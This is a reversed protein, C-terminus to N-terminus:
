CSKPGKRKKCDYIRPTLGGGSFFIHSLDTQQIRVQGKISMLNTKDLIGLLCLLGVALLLPMQHVEKVYGNNDAISLLNDASRFWKNASSFSNTPAILTLQQCLQLKRYSIIIAIDFFDM